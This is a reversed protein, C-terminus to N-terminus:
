SMSLKSLLEEQENIEDLVFEHARRAADTGEAELAALMRKQAAEELRPPLLPAAPDVVAHILFPREAVLACDWADAVQDASDVKCGDLGLLKAYEAYPISSVRQSEPFRPDGELERQEWSVEGLDGNDLVLIPLRPDTWEPWMTAVTILENIGNMQMAGDGALAVVLRGPHALKAAVAYPMASGMSALTSSLHADMGAGLRVLRAYWYTVSGVDVALL